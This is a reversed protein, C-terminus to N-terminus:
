VPIEVVFNLEGGIIKFAKRGLEAWSLKLSLDPQSIVKEFTNM